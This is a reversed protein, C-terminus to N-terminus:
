YQSRISDLDKKSCFEFKYHFNIKLKKILIKLFIHLLM